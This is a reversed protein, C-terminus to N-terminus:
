WSEPISNKNKCPSSVNTKTLPLLRYLPVKIKQPEVMLAMIHNATFNLSLLLYFLSGECVIKNSAIRGQLLERSFISKWNFQIVKVCPM